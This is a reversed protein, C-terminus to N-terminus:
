SSHHLPATGCLPHRRTGLRASPATAHRRCPSSLVPCHLRRTGLHARTGPPVAIPRTCLPPSTAPPVKQVSPTFTSYPRSQESSDCYTSETWCIKDVIKEPINFQAPFLTFM